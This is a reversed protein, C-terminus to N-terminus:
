KLSNRWENYFRIIFYVSTLLGATSGVLLPASGSDMLGNLLLYESIILLVISAFFLIVRKKSM